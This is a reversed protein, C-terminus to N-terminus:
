PLRWVKAGDGLATGVRSSDPSWAVEYVRTEIDRSQVYKVELSQADLVKLEGHHGIAIWKGNPSYEACEYRMYRTTGTPPEVVDKHLDKRKRSDLALLVIHGRETCYVIQKGGPAASVDTVPAEAPITELLKGERLDWIRLTSDNGGSILTGDDLFEICRVAAKHGKLTRVRKASALEWIVVVPSAPSAMKHASDSFDHEDGCAVAIVSGGPSIDLALPKEEMVEFRRVTEFRSRSFNSTGESQTAVILRQMERSAFVLQKGGPLFRIGVAGERIMASPVRRPGEGNAPLLESIADDKTDWGGVMHSEDGRKVIVGSSTGLGEYGAAWMENDDSAAIARCPPHDQGWFELTKELDARNSNRGPFKEFVTAVQSVAFAALLVIGAIVAVFFTIAFGVIWKTKPSRKPPKTVPYPYYPAVAPQASVPVQIPAPSEPTFGSSPDPYVLAM